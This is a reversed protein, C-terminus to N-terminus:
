EDLLYKDPMNHKSPLLNLIVMDSLLFVVWTKVVTRTKCSTFYSYSCSNLLFFPVHLKFCTCIFINESSLSSCDNSAPFLCLLSWPSSMGPVQAKFSAPSLSLRFHLSYQSFSCFSDIYLYPSTYSMKLFQSLVMMVSTAQQSLPPPLYYSFIFLLDSPFNLLIMVTLSPHHPLTVSYLVIAFNDKSNLINFLACSPSLGIFLTWTWM